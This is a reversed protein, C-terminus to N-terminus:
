ESMAENVQAIVDSLGEAEYQECIEAWMDEVPEEGTMITLYDEELNVTFDIGLELVKQTCEPYYEPIEIAAAEEVRAKNVATYEEPITAVFRDDYTSPNWRALYALAGTSPYTDSVAASEDKLVVKGDALDYLEGEPGYTSLFAGEDSLLYDYLQLIKDMKVEDVGANIYSESWAYSAMVPYAKNGNQDPMLNLAKVDDLYETGHVEKWYRAVKQYMDGFGGAFLIAASSGQLFKEEASQNTTLVIDKEIAGSEYLDRGLQFGALADETFYAPVYQGEEDKVWKYASGGDVAISSGYPMFMTSLLNKDASTMGSVGTGDPDAEIIALMMTEFEEWTEPEKEIGAAQALDWRYAIFRDMSTYYQDPYTQRPICYLTGGIKAEEAADGALYAELNPYASLDEPIASIVGQNAWQPYTATTRFAGVFVDPLSGSSAWLQVKQTYDDWTINMPVIKIGLKEEIATQVADGQFCEDANWTAITIEVPEEEAFVSVGSVPLAMTMGLVAALIRKGLNKKRM